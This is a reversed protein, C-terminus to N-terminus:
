SHDTNAGRLRLDPGTGAAPLVGIRGRFGTGPARAAGAQATRALGGCALTQIAQEDRQIARRIPMQPTWQLEKLLRGVHGKHYRVGFEAEIVKAVRGRTWVQGRFGYAEPGHRLFEPILRKQADPLKPPRRPVPQTRLMEPGGRHVRALWHSVSVESVGLAEAIACQRWGQYKLQLARLRRWERWDGPTFGAAEM